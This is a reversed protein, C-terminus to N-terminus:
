PINLSNILKDHPGELIDRTFRDFMDVRYKFEETTMLAYTLPRGANVEWYSLANELSRRKINDGVILLDVRAGESNIFAGSAVALKVKGFKKIKGILRHRPEPVQRLILDRLERFLDFSHNITYVVVSKSRMRVKKTKGRGQVESVVIDATKKQVLDIKQFKALEKAVIRDSFGSLRALEELSFHSSPNRFFVRLLRVKPESEFLKELLGTPM